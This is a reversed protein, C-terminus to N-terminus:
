ADVQEVKPKSFYRRIGKFGYEPLIMSSKAPIATNEQSPFFRDNVKKGLNDGAHASFFSTTLIELYKLPEPWAKFDLFHAQDILILNLIVGATTIGLSVSSRLAL